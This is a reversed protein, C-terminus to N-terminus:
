CFGGIDMLYYTGRLVLRELPELLGSYRQADRSLSYIFKTPSLSLFLSLPHIGRDISSM